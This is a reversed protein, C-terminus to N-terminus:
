SRYSGIKVGFVSNAFGLAHGGCAGSFPALVSFMLLPIALSYYGNFILACGGCSPLATPTYITEITVITFLYAASDPLLLSGVVVFIFLPIPGLVGIAFGIVLGRVVTYGDLYAAILGGVGAGSLNIVPVFGTVLAVIGGILAGNPVASVYRKAM